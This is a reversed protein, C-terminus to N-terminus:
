VHMCSTCVDNSGVLVSHTCQVSREQTGDSSPWHLQQAPLLPQAPRDIPLLHLPLLPSNLEIQSVSVISLFKATALSAKQLLQSGLVCLM